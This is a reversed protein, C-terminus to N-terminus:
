DIDMEAPEWDSDQESMELIDDEYLVEDNRQKDLQGAYNVAELIEPYVFNHTFINNASMTAGRNTNIRGQQPGEEVVIKVSSRSKARSLAVYMQGHSWLPTQLFLGARSLTQGQSKNVTIAYSLKLPFQRRRLKGPLSFEDTVFTIRFIAATEGKQAGTMIECIIVNDYMKKVKLRTGNCLGGSVRLNRILMVSAGPVLHLIHPPLSASQLSDLYEKPYHLREQDNSDRLEKSLEFSTASYYKKDDVRKHLLKKVVKELVANAANNTPCLIAAEHADEKEIKSGFCFTIL